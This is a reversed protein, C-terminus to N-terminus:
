TFACFIHSFFNSFCMWFFQMIMGLRQGGLEGMEGDNTIVIFQTHCEQYLHSLRTFISTDPIIFYSSQSELQDLGKHWCGRGRVLGLGCKSLWYAWFWSFVFFWSIVDDNMNYQRQRCICFGPWLFYDQCSWCASVLFFCGFVYNTDNLRSQM